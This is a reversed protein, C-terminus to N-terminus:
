GDCWTSAPHCDEYRLGHFEAIEEYDFWGSRGLHDNLFSYQNVQIYKMPENFSYLEILELAQKELEKKWKRAEEEKSCNRRELFYPLEEGFPFNDRVINEVNWDKLNAKSYDWDNSENAIRTPIYVTGGHDEDPCCLRNKFIFYTWDYEISESYKEFAISKEREFEVLSPILKIEGLAKLSHKLVLLDLDEKKSPWQFKFYGCAIAVENVSYKKALHNIILVLDEGKIKNDKFRTEMEARDEDLKKLSRRAHAAASIDLDLESTSYEGTLEKCTSRYIFAQPFAPFIDIAKNLDEIAGVFDNADKKSIAKYFYERAKSSISDNNIKIGHRNILATEKLKMEELQISYENRIQEYDQSKNEIKAELTQANSLDPFLSSQIPINDQIDEKNM